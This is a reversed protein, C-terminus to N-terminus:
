EDVWASLNVLMQKLYEDDMDDFYEFIVNGLVEGHDIRKFWEKKKATLGIAKRLANTDSNLWNEPFHGSYRAKVSDIMDSECEYHSKKACNILKKVGDWPINDFIQQEISSDSECDFIDIGNERLTTKSANIEPVDSDCLIGVDFGANNLEESRSVFNAGTGDIYACDSFSMPQQGKNQRYKDLARCIGIETAGECVIIKKAFFAESCARVTGQLKDNDYDLCKPETLENKKDNHIVIIDGADVETIVERSHTTIFIQGKSNHKLARALLKIRDPELGQEIEDVLIIGGHKALSMQIAISILRKSGKGKLRFPINDDHLCVRGERFSIDRFDISTNSDTIDLGLASTQNIIDETTKALSDSSHADIISKAERIAELVINKDEDGFSEDNANLLSYLPNGKNWSFHRDVYDSLMFCNLKARDTASIPKNEQERNNVVEWSPELNQGVSLRISIAPLNGDIIEDSITNTEPSFGKQWLGYRSESLLEDPVNILTAEIEIDRTCDCNYFDTDYFSLNWAPFLVCSIADLITTKGSDGRGVLCIFNKDAKIDLDFSKIGRFNKISLNIINSM